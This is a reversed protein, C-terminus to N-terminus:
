KVMGKTVKREKKIDYLGWIFYGDCVKTVLTKRNGINKLIENVDAKTPRWYLLKYTEGEFQKLDGPILSKRKKKVSRKSLKESECKLCSYWSIPDKGSWILHKTLEGGCNPCKRDTSIDRMKRKLIPKVMRQNVEYLGYKKGFIALRSFVSNSENGYWRILQNRYNQYAKKGDVKVLMAVRDDDASLYEDKRQFREAWETMYYANAYGEGKWICAFKVFRETDVSNLGVEKAIERFIPENTCSIERKKRTKTNLAM